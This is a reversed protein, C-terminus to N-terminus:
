NLYLSFNPKHKAVQQLKIQNEESLHANKVTFRRLSSNFQIMRIITNVPLESTLQNDSLHLERLTQNQDILVEVLSQMGKESLRNGNLSLNELTRNTKLMNALSRAGQDTIDNGDLQLEILRCDPVCLAEALHSIGVDHLSNKGVDLRKLANPRRFLPIFTAIGHESILNEQLDLEQCHTNTSLHQVIIRM